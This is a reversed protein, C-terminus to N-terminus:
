KLFLYTGLSIILLPLVGVLVIALIWKGDNSSSPPSSSPICSPLLGGNAAIQTNGSCSCNFFGSISPGSIISGPPVSPPFPTTVTNILYKSLGSTFATFSNLLISPCSLQSNLQVLPGFTLFSPLTCSTALGDKISELLCAQISTGQLSMWLLHSMNSM